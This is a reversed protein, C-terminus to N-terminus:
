AAEKQQAKYEARRQSVSQKRRRAEELVRGDTPRQGDRILYAAASFIYGCLDPHQKDLPKAIRKAATSGPEAGGTYYPTRTM